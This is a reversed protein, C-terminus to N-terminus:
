SRAIWSWGSGLRFAEPREAAKQVAELAAASDLEVPVFLVASQDDRTRYGDMFPKYGDPAREVGAPLQALNGEMLVFALM